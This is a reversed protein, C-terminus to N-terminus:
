DISNVEGTKMMTLISNLENQLHRLAIKAMSDLASKTHNKYNYAAKFYDQATYNWEYDFLLCGTLNYCKETTEKIQSAISFHEAKRKCDINLTKVLECAQYVKSYSYTAKENTM